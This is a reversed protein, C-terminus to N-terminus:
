QGSLALISKHRLEYYLYICHLMSFSFCKNPLVLQIECDSWIAERPFFPFLHWRGYASCYPVLTTACFTGFYSTNICHSIQCVSINIWLTYLLCRQILSLSAIHRIDCPESMYRITCAPGLYMCPLRPEHDLLFHNFHVLCFLLLCFM